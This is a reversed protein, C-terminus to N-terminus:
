KINFLFSCNNLLVMKQRLPPCSRVLRVRILRIIKEKIKSTSPEERERERERERLM